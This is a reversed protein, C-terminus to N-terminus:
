KKEYQWKEVDVYEEKCVHRKYKAYADRLEQMKGEFRHIITQLPTHQHLCQLFAQVCYLFM